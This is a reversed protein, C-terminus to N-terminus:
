SKVWICGVGSARYFFRCLLYERNNWPQVKTFNWILSLQLLIRLARTRARKTAEANAAGAWFFHYFLSRFYIFCHLIKERETGTRESRAVKVCIPRQILDIIVHIFQLSFEGINCFHIYHTSRNFSPLDPSKADYVLFIKFLWCKRNDEDGSSYTGAIPYGYHSRQIDHVFENFM